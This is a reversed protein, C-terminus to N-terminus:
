SSECLRASITTSRCSIRFSVGGGVGLRKGAEIRLCTGPLPRDRDYWAHRAGVTDARRRRALLSRHAPWQADDARTSSRARGPPQLLVRSPRAHDTRLRAEGDSRLGAPLPPGRLLGRLSQPPRRRGGRYQIEITDGPELDPFVVVLARTDYYIRYWPEGLQREFRQTAELVSGNARYVRAQRIDVRQTDPDFQISRSRLQRAGADDHAQAAYQTFSSGLGNDYVTNVTLDQLVTTPYGDQEVRRRLLEESSVAYREDPREREPEIQELLERTDADQPRLALARRLSDAPQPRNSCACTCAASRPWSRPMKRHSRKRAGLSNSRKTKM